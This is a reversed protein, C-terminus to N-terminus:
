AWESLEPHDGWRFIRLKIGDVFDKKGDLTVNVLELPETGSM